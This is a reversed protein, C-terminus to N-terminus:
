HTKRYNAVIGLLGISLRRETGTGLRPEVAKGDVIMWGRDVPQHSGVAAKEFIM